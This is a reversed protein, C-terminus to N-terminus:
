TIDQGTAPPPLPPLNSVPSLPCLGVQCLAGCVGLAGPGRLAVGDYMPSRLSGFALEPSTGSKLIPDPSGLRPLAWGTAGLSFVALGLDM